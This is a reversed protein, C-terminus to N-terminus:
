IPHDDFVYRRGQAQEKKPKPLEKHDICDSM